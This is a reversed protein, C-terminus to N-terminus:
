RQGQLSNILPLMKNVIITLESPNPTSCLAVYGAAVGFRASSLDHNQAFSSSAQDLDLMSRMLTRKNFQSLPRFSFSEVYKNPPPQKDFGPDISREPEPFILVRKREPPINKELDAEYDIIYQHAASDSGIVQEIKPKLRDLNAQMHLDFETIRNAESSSGCSCVLWALMIYSPNFKM